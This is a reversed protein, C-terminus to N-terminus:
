YILLQCMANALNLYTLLQSTFSHTSPLPLSTFKSESPLFVSKDKFTLGLAMFVGLSVEKPSKQIIPAM